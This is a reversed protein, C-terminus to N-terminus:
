RTWMASVATIRPPVDYEQEMLVGRIYRGERGQVATREMHGPVALRLFGDQLLGWTGDEPGPSKRGDMEGM